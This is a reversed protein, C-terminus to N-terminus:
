QGAFWSEVFDLTTFVDGLQGGLAPWLISPIILSISGLIAAWVLKAIWLGEVFELGYSKGPDGSNKLHAMWEIWVQDPKIRGPNHYAHMLVRADLYDAPKHRTPVGNHTYEIPVIYKLKRFFLWRRWEKQLEDRYARRIEWWVDQDNDKFQDFSVPATRWEHSTPDCVSLVLHIKASFKESRLPHDRKSHFRPQGATPRPISIDHRELLEEFKNHQTFSSPPPLFIPTTNTTDSDPITEVHEVRPVSSYKDEASM